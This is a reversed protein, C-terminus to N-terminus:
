LTWYTITDSIGLVIFLFAALRQAWVGFRRARSVMMRDLGFGVTLAAFLLLPMATGVAFLPPLMLGYASKLALPMVGGFFLSFMTPCFGISFAVGMLLAGGKGGIRKSISHVSASLGFGLGPWKLLGILVLGMIILLPGLLKRSYVFFPIAETSISRGFVWFLIGFVSFVVMKGVLYLLLESWSMNAQMQRRGFHTIAGINASIQCPAVSGIFGLFLVSVLAINTSYVVNGFPESLWSSIQSFFSYM